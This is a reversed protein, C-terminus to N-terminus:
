SECFELPIHDAVGVGVVARLINKRGRQKQRPVSQGLEMERQRQSEPNLFTAYATFSSVTNPPPLLLLDVSQSYCSCLVALIDFVYSTPVFAHCGSWVSPQTAESTVFFTTSPSLTFNTNASSFPSTLKHSQCTNLAYQIGSKCVLSTSVVSSSNDFSAIFEVSGGKIFGLMSSALSSRVFRDWRFSGATNCAM